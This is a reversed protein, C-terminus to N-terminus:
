LIPHTRCILNVLLDYGVARSALGGVGGAVAEALGVAIATDVNLPVSARKITDVFTLLVNEEDPPLMQVCHYLTTACFAHSSPFPILCVIATVALLSRM